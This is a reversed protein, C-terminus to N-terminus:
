KWCKKGKYYEGIEIGQPLEWLFSVNEEWLDWLERIARLPFFINVLRFNKESVWFFQLKYKKLHKPEDCESIKGDSEIFSIM